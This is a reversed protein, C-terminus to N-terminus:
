RHIDSPYVLEEDVGASRLGLGSGTTLLGMGDWGLAALWDGYCMAYGLGTYAM